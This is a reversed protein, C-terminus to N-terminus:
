IVMVLLMMADTKVYDGDTCRGICAGNSVDDDNMVDEVSRSDGTVDSTVYGGNGDCVGGGGVVGVGDGGDGGVGDGVGYCVGSGGDGGCDDGGSGGCGGVSVGGSVVVSRPRGERGPVASPVGPM